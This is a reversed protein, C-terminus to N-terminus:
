STLVIEYYKSLLLWLILLRELELVPRPLEMQTLSDRPPRYDTFNRM